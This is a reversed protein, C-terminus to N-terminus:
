SIRTTSGNHRFPGTPEVEPQVADEFDRVSPRTNELRYAVGGRAMVMATDARSMRVESHSAAM